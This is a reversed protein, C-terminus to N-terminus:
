DRLDSFTLSKFCGRLVCPIPSKHIQPPEVVWQVFTVLVLAVLAPSGFGM